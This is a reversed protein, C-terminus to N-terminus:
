YNQAIEGKTVINEFTTLQLPMLFHRYSPFPYWDPTEIQNPCVIIKINWIIIDCLLEFNTCIARYNLLLIDNCKILWVQVQHTLGKGCALFWCIVKFFISFFYSFVRFIFLHSNFLTSLKHCFSFYSLCAIPLLHVKGWM